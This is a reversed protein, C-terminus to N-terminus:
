AILDGSVRWVNSGMHFLTAMSEQTRLKLGPTSKLTATGAVITTQGAGSQAIVITAGTAATMTNMTVTNASAVNMEILSYLDGAIPAYSATKTAIVIDRSAYNTALGSITAALGTVAAQAITNTSDLTKNTLSQTDTTGVAVGSLGHVGTSAVVHANPEDLDRATFGHSVVGGSTHAVGTSGDVGRTVTCNVGSRYTVEVVEENVTGVDLLLTFPVSSPLGTAATLTISTASSSVSSTLTTRRAVSSYYRRTPM